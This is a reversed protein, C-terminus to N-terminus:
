PVHIFVLKEPLPDEAGEHGLAATTNLDPSAEPGCKGLSSAMRYRDHVVAVRRGQSGLVFPILVNRLLEHGLDFLHVNDPTAAGVASSASHGPINIENDCAVNDLV